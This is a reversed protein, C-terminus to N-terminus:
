YICLELANLDSAAAQKMTYLLPQVTDVQEFSRSVAGVIDMVM